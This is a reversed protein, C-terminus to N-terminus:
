AEFFFYKFKVDNIHGELITLHKYIVELAKFFEIFMLLCKNM